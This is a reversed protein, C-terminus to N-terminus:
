ATTTYTKYTGNYGQYRVVGTTSLNPAKLEMKGTAIIDAGSGTQTVYYRWFGVTSSSFSAESISFESYRDKFDSVDTLNLTVEEKTVEHQFLFTYANSSTERKDFLAIYIVSDAGQEIIVM